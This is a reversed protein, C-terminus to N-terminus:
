LLYKPESEPSMMNKKCKNADFEISKDNLAFFKQM